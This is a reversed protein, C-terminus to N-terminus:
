ELYLRHFVSTLYTSWREAVLRASYHDFVVDRARNLVDQSVSQAQAISNALERGSADASVRQSFRGYQSELGDILPNDTVVVPVKAAFAELLALPCAESYSPLMFVDMGRFVNGVDETPPFIKVKDGAIRRMQQIIPRSQDITSGYVIVVADGGISCVARALATCNKEAAIRGIYGIALTTDGIAWQKRIEGRTLTPTCRDLEIGNPIIQVGGRSTSTFQSWFPSVAVVFHEPRISDGLEPANRQLVNVLKRNHPGLRETLSNDLEWGVVIHARACLDLISRALSTRRSSDRFFIRGSCYTPVYSSVLGLMKPEVYPYAVVNAVWKIRDGSCHRLLNYIWREAGGFLLSPGIFGIRIVGGSGTMTQSEKDHAAHVTM